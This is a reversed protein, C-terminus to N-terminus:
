RDRPSESNPSVDSADKSPMSPEQGIKKLHKRLCEMMKPDSFEPDDMGTEVRVRRLVELLDEGSISRGAEMSAAALMQQLFEQGQPSLSVVDDPSPAVRGSRKREARRSKRNPRPDGGGPSPFGPMGPPNQM